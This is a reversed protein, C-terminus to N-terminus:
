TRDIKDIRDTQNFWCVSSGSLGFLGSLGSLGEGGSELKNGCPGFAIISEENVEHALTSSIDYM